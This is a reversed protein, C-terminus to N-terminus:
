FVGREKMYKKIESEPISGMSIIEFAKEYSIEPHNKQYNEAIEIGIDSIKSM